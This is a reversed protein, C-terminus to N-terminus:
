NSLFEGLLRNFAEPNDLNAVHGAAPVIEFRADPLTKALRRSLKVNIRDREGCLVLTPMPPLRELRFSAGERMAEKAHSADIEELAVARHEEPLGSVLGKRLRSDPLAGVAVAMGRQFLRLHAPLRAFGACVVLRRIRDPQEGAYRLALLAGLSLGCLDFPTEARDLTEDADELRPAVAKPFAELQPQWGGPGTGLGHLLVLTRL